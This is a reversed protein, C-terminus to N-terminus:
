YGQGRPNPPSRQPQHSDSIPISVTAPALRQMGILWPSAGRPGVRIATGDRGVRDRYYDELLPELEHAYGACEDAASVSIELAGGNAGRFRHRVSAVCGPCWRGDSHQITLHVVSLLYYDDVGRVRQDQLVISDFQVIAHAAVPSTIPPFWQELTRAADSLTQNVSYCRSRRHPLEVATPSRDTPEERPGRRSRM